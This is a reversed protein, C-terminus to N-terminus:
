CTIAAQHAARYLLLPMDGSIRRSGWITVRQPTQVGHFSLIPTPPLLRLATPRELSMVAGPLCRSHLGIFLSGSGM